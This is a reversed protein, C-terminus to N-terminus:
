QVMTVGQASELGLLTGGKAQQCNVFNYFSLM